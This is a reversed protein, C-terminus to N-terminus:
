FPNESAPGPGALRDLRAELRDLRAEHKVRTAHRRKAPPPEDEESDLITPLLFGALLWDREQQWKVAAAIMVQTDILGPAHSISM